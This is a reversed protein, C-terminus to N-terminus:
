LYMGPPPGTEKSKKIPNLVKQIQRIMMIHYNSESAHSFGLDLSFNEVITKIKHSNLLHKNKNLFDIFGKNELFKTPIKRNKLEQIIIKKIKSLKFNKIESHIIKHQSHLHKNRDYHEQKQTYDMDETNITAIFFINYCESSPVTKIIKEYEDEPSYNKAFIITKQKNENEEIAQEIVKQILSTKRKVKNLDIVILKNQEKQAIHHISAAKGTGSNGSLVWPILKEQANSYKYIQEPHKLLKRFEKGFERVLSFYKLNIDQEPDQYNFVSVEPSELINKTEVLSSDKAEEEKDDKEEEGEEQNGLNAQGQLLVGLLEELSIEIQEKEEEQALASLNTFTFCYFFLILKIIRM